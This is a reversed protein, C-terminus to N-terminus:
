PDTSFSYQLDKPCHLYRMWNGSKEKLESKRQMSQVCWELQPNLFYHNCDLILSDLSSSDCRFDM